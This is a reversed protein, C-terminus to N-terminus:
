YTVHGQRSIVTVNLWLFIMLKAPSFVLIFSFSITAVVKCRNNYRSFGYIINMIKLFVLYVQQIKRVTKKKKKKKKQKTKNQKKNKKWFLCKQSKRKPKRSVLGRRFGSINEFSFFWKRNSHVGASFPSPFRCSLIGRLIDEECNCTFDNYLLISSHM